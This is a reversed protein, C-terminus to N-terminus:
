WEMKKTKKNKIKKNRRIILIVLLLLIFFFLGWFWNRDLQHNTGGEINLVESHEVTEAGDFRITLIHKGGEPFFITFSYTGTPEPFLKGSFITKKDEDQLKIWLNDTNVAAETVAEKLSVLFVTSKGATLQETDYGIDVIHGEVTADVGGALHALALSSTLLLLAIVLSKFKKM